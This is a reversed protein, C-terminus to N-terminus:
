KALPSGFYTGPVSIDNLVLSGAGIVVDDCISVGPKIVTNAGIFCNQGVIVNGCLVTGPCVHTFDGIKCEHDISCSTNCIVGDGIECMPNITASAAVLIGQGMKISAAVVSRPHIANVIHQNNATLFRYVNQRIGANGIGIFFSNNNLRNAAIYAEERGLYELLFPNLEKQDQDCYGRLKLGMLNLIDAAVYGHGGYGILVVGNSNSKGLSM